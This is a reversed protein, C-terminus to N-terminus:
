QNRDALHDISAFRPKQARTCWSRKVVAEVMSTPCRHRFVLFGYDRESSLRQRGPTLFLKLRRFAPKCAALTVTSWSTLGVHPYWSAASRRTWCLHIIDAM